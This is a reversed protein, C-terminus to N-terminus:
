VPRLFRSLHGRDATFPDATRKKGRGVSGHPWVRITRKRVFYYADTGRPTGYWLRTPWVDLPAQYFLPRGARAWALVAAWSDFHILNDSM